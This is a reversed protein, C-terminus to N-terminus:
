HWFQSNTWLQVNEKYDKFSQMYRELQNQKQIQRLQLKDYSKMEKSNLRKLVFSGLALSCFIELQPLQLLPQKKLKTRLLVRVLGVSLYTIGSIKFSYLINSQHLDNRFINM